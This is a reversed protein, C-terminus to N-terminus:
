AGVQFPSRPEQWPQVLGGDRAPNINQRLVKNEEAVKGPNLLEWAWVGLSFDKNGSVVEGAGNVGRYFINNASTPDIASAVTRAAESGKRSLYYAGVLVVAGAVALVRADTGAILM